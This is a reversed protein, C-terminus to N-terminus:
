RAGGRALYALVFQAVQGPLTLLHPNLPLQTVPPYEFTRVFDNVKTGEAGACIHNHEYDYLCNM